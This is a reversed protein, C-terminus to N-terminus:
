VAVRFSEKDIGEQVKVAMWKPMLGRGSWTKGSLADRYIFTVGQAKLRQRVNKLHRQRTRYKRAREAPTMPNEIRPRGRGRKAAKETIGAIMTQTFESLGALLDHTFSDAADQM